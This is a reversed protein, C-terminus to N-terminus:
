LNGDMQSRYQVIKIIKYIVCVSTVISKRVYFVMMGLGYYYYKGWLAVMECQGGDFGYGGDCSVEGLSIRGLM